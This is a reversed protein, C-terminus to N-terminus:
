VLPLTELKNQNFSIPPATDSTNLGEGDAVVTVTASVDSVELAINKVTTTGGGITVTETHKKFGNLTVHLTYIGAALDMFKYEGQDNTVTSRATQAAFTSTLNLSAGPLREGAENTVSVTGQLECTQAAVSNLTAGAFLFAGLLAMRLMLPLKIAHRLWLAQQAESNRKMIMYRRKRLGSM